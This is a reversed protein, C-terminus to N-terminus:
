TFAITMPMTIAAPTRTVPHAEFVGVDFGPGATNARASADVDVGVTAEILAVAAINRSGTPVCRM